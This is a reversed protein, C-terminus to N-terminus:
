LRGREGEIDRELEGTSGARSTSRARMWVLVDIMHVSNVLQWRSQSAEKM